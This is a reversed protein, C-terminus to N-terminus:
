QSTYDYVGMKEFFIDWFTGTLITRFWLLLGRIFPLVHGIHTIYSRGTRPNYDYEVDALRMWFEARAYRFDFVTNMIFCFLGLVTPPYGSNNYSGNVLSYLDEKVATTNITQVRELDNTATTELSINTKIASITPITGLILIAFLSEMAIKKTRSIM